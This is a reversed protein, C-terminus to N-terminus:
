EGDDCIPLIRKRLLVETRAYSVWESLRCARKLLCTTLNFPARRQGVGGGLAETLRARWLAHAGCLLVSWRISRAPATDRERGRSERQLWPLSCRHFSPCYTDEVSTLLCCGCDTHARGYKFLSERGRWEACPLRRWVQPVVSYGSLARSLM